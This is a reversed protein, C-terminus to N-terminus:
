TARPMVASINRLNSSPNCSGNHHPCQWFYGLVIDENHPGDEVDYHVFLQLSFMNQYAITLFM